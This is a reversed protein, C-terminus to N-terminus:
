PYFTAERDGLNGFRHFNVCVSQERLYHLLEFRGEQMPPASAATQGQAALAQLAVDPLLRHGSHRLRDLQSITEALQADDVTRFAVERMLLEALESSSSTVACRPTFSTSKPTTLASVGPFSM